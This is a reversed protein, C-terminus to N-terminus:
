SILTVLAIYFIDEKAEGFGDQFFTGITEM